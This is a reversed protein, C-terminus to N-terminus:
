NADGQHSSESEPLLSVRGKEDNEGILPEPAEPYDKKAKRAFKAGERETVAQSMSSNEKGFNRRRDDMSKVASEIEPDTADRRTARDITHDNGSSGTWERYLSNNNLRVQVRRPTPFAAPQLISQLPLLCPRPPRPILIGNFKSSPLSPM